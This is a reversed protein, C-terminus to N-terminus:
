QFIEEGNYWDINNREKIMRICYFSKQRLIDDEDELYQSLFDISKSTGIFALINLAGYISYGNKIKAEFLSIFENEFKTPNLAIINNFIRSISYDTEKLYSKCIELIFEIYRDDEIPPIFIVLQRLKSNRINDALRCFKEKFHYLIKLCYEKPFSSIFRFSALNINEYDIETKLYRDFLAEALDAFNHKLLLGIMNTFFLYNLLEDPETFFRESIKKIKNIAIKEDLPFIYGIYKIFSRIHFFSNKELLKQPDYEGFIEIITAEVYGNQYDLYPKLFKLLKSKNFHKIRNEKLFYKTIIGFLQYYAYEPHKIIYSDYNETLESLDSSNPIFSKNKIYKLIDFIEDFEMTLDSNLIIEALDGRYDISLEDDKIKTILLTLDTERIIKSLIMITNFDHFTRRERKLIKLLRPIIEHDGYKIITEELFNRIDIIVSNRDLEIEFDVPEDYIKMVQRFSKSSLEGKRTINFLATGIMNLYSIGGWEREIENIIFDQIEQDGFNSLAIIRHGNIPNLYIDRETKLDFNKLKFLYNRANQSKLKGLELLSWVLINPREEKEIINTLIEEPNNSYRLYKEILGCVEDQIFRYKSNLRELLVKLIFVEDSENLVAQELISELYLFINTKKLTEKYSENEILPFSTILYNRFDFTNVIDKFPISLINKNIQDGLEIACFYELLNSHWFSYFSKEQIIINCSIFFETLVGDSISSNIEGKERLYDTRETLLEIYERKKLQNAKLKFIMNFAIYSIVKKSVDFISPLLIQNESVHENFYDQILNDLLEYKSKPFQKFGKKKIYIILYNLFLPLRVMSTLNRKQIESFFVQPDEELNNKIHDHLKELGPPKISIISPFNRELEEVSNDIKLTILFVNTPYDDKFKLLDQLFKIKNEQIIEDYGDLLLIFRGKMLFSKITRKKLEPIKLEENILKFIGKNDIWFKLRILIPILNTENENLLRIFHNKLFKLFQTKGVGSEGKLIFSNENNKKEQEDIEVDEDIDRSKDFTLVQNIIEKYDIDKEKELTFKFLSYDNIKYLREKLVQITDGEELNRRVYISIWSNYLSFKVQEGLNERLLEYHEERWRKLEHAKYDRGKNADIKKHCNRCIWIGNEISKIDDGSLNLDFRASNLKNGYIHAAEGIKITKEPINKAPAITLKRCKPNTCIYGALEAIQRAKTSNFKFDYNTREYKIIGRNGEDIKRMHNKKILNDLIKKLKDLSLGNFNECIEEKTHPDKLFKIIAKQKNM